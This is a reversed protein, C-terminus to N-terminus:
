VCVCVCVYVCMCHLTCPASLRCCTERTCACVQLAQAILMQCSRIMCGWGADSTWAKPGLPAMDRRYSVWLLQQFAQQLEEADEAKAEADGRVM